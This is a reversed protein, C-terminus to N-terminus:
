SGKIRLKVKKNKKFMKSASQVVAEVEGLILMGM